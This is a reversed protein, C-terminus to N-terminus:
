PHFRAHYKYHLYAEDARSLLLCISKQMGNYVMYAMGDEDHRVM